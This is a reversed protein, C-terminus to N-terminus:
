HVHGDTQGAASNCPSPLFYSPVYPDLACHLCSKCACFLVPVVSVPLPNGASSVTGSRGNCARLRVSKPVLQKAAACHVLMPRAARALVKAACEALLPDDADFMEELPGMSQSSCSFPIQATCLKSRLLNASLCSRGVVLDLQSPLQPLCLAPYLAPRTASVPHQLVPLGGACAATAFGRCCRGSFAPSCAAPCLGVPLRILAILFSRSESRRGREADAEAGKDHPASLTLRMAAGEESQAAAEMAAQLVEPSLLNPTLRAVLARTLDAAPGKSGVRQMVEKGAACPLFDRPLAPCASTLRWAGTRSLFACCGCVSLAVSAPREWFCGPAQRAMAAHAGAAADKFPCGFTAMTALGKFIHNDKQEM